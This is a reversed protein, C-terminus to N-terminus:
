NSPTIIKGTVYNIKGTSPEIKEPFYESLVPNIVIKEPFLFSKEPIINGFSELIQRSKESVKSRYDM